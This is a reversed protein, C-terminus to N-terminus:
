GNQEKKLKTIDLIRDTLKYFCGSEPYYTWFSILRLGTMLVVQKDHQPDNAGGLYIKIKSGPKTM